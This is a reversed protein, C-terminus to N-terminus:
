AQYQPPRGLEKLLDNVQHKLELVREERDIMVQNAKQLDDKERKLATETQKRETIDRIIATFSPDAGIKWTALSLEIPFERGDKKLGVLELVQGIVRSQGTSVFRQIGQQHANRFREPMLVTLPKNLVDTAAHRFMQEAAKNFFTIRGDKCALVIADHSTEVIVRLREESEHLAAEVHRRESMDRIVALVLPGNGAAEFPGIAIDVPLESGDKRRGWLEVGRQGMLRKTPQRVYGQRQEVHWRHLREPILVEVPQNLLEGSGYGFMVEAQQSAQVIRGERDVLVAADPLLELLTQM